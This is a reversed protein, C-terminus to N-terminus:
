GGAYAAICPTGVMQAEGLSNSENEIMSPCVFVHAKRFQSCMQEADLRGLWRFRDRVGLREMLNGLYRAYGNRRWAPVSLIDPGVVKVRADPYHRLVLPLAEVM